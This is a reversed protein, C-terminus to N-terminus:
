ANDTEERLTEAADLAAAVIPHYGTCRCLHGSLVDCIREADAQPETALLTDISMLIGSACFGCQLAHHKRFADQLVSLRAPAPALAEVTDIKAGEIQVAFTLCSRAMAGDIRVTCAGCVGHECGVHTGTAGQVGRLFDSLLMRPHATGEAPKGNLTFRVPHRKTATLRRM